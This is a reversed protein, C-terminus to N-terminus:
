RGGSLPEILIRGTGDDDATYLVRVQKPRGLRTATKLSVELTGMRTENKLNLTGFTHESTGNLFDNRTCGSFIKVQAELTMLGLDYADNPHINVTKEDFSHDGLLSLAGTEQVSAV